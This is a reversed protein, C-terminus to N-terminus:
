NIGRRFQMLTKHDLTERFLARYRELRKEPQSDIMLYTEHPTTLGDPIGLANQRYSSWLYQEPTSVLSARVPNLEIYRYCALLYNETDIVSTKYRGEWLAGSRGSFQNYYCCYIRGLWQMTRPLSDESAPTLLLHIHNTMLAWAHVAIDYKETAKRLCEVFYQYDFTSMVIPQKSHGRNVVHLPQNPIFIRPKRPM